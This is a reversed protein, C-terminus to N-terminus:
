YQQVSLVPLVLALLVVAFTEQQETIFHKETIVLASYSQTNWKIEYVKKPGTIYWM